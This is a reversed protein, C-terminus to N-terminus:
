RGTRWKRNAMGRMRPRCEAPGPSQGATFNLKRFCPLFSRASHPTGSCSPPWAKRIQSGARADCVQLSQSDLKKQFMRSRKYNLGPRIRLKEAKWSSSDREINGECKAKLQHKIVRLRANDRYHMSRGWRCADSEMISRIVRGEEEGSFDM